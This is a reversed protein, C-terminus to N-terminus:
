THIIVERGGSRALALAICLRDRCWWGQPRHLVEAATNKQTKLGGTNTPVHRLGSRYLGYKFQGSESRYLGYKFQGSESTQPVCFWRRVGPGRDPRGARSAPASSRKLAFIAVNARKVCKTRVSPVKTYLVGGIAQALGDSEAIYPPRAPLLGLDNIAM